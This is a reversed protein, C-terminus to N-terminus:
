VGRITIRKDGVRAVVELEGGLAEVYARLSSVRMDDQREFRSLQGQDIGMAEATQEQTMGAIRRLERLSVERENAVAQEVSEPKKLDHAMAYLTESAIGIGIPDPWEVAGRDVYAQLFAGEHRLSTFPKKDLLPRLNAVGRTGDSFVLALTYDPRAEVERVRIM